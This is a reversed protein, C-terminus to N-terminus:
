KQLNEIEAQTLIRWKGSPLAGLTLKGEAVRKLRLVKLDALECMRRIQRNRGETITVSILSDASGARLLDVKAPVIPRGDLELASSLTELADGSVKGRVLVNYTKSISNSPHMLRNALEGDDTMILLGESDMDLRGVPFVRAEVESVLEAVTRRSKEDNMTTVYGRPKHLMIYTREGVFFVPKGDIEIKDTDEAGEGLTVPRGNVTVRGARILEEAARRSCRGSSAIIKQIRQKM